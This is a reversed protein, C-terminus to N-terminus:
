LKAACSNGSPGLSVAREITQMYADFAQPWSPMEQLRKRGLSIKRELLDDSEFASVIKELMDEPNMPDFYVAAEKCVDRAFDLDSTFIVKQHFMAEVYTGSFSEMLTPMLLASCSAFLSPVKDMPIVGLNVIISDLRRREVELLFASAGPSEEPELTTVLNFPLNRARILEALSLFVEINKHPYYRTLYLLNFKGSPLDFLDSKEQYHDLSVANGVVTIDSMGYLSSLRQQMTDTQAIVYKSYSIYKKFFWLKASRYLRERKPMRSWIDADPYVAYAWDFLYVQPIKSRVAVDALNFLVDVKRKRLLRPLILHNWIPMCFGRRAMPPPPLIHIHDCSFEAFGDLGPTMVIFQHNTKHNKLLKLFNTLVSRGGGIKSNVGNVFITAM